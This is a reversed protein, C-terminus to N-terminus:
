QHKTTDLIPVKMLVTTSRCYGSSFAHTNDVLQSVAFYNCHEFDSDKPYMRLCVVEEIKLMAYKLLAESALTSVAVVFVSRSMSSTIVKTMKEIRVKQRNEAKANVCNKRKVAHGNRFIIHRKINTYNLFIFLFHIISRDQCIM